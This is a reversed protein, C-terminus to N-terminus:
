PTHTVGDAIQVVQEATLDGDVAVTFTTGDPFRAQLFWGTYGNGPDLRFLQAPSGHVTVEQGPGAGAAVVDPAQEAPLVEEPLLVSVTLGRTTAPDSVDALRVIRGGAKLVDLRYGAPALHLQVPITQPGEVLSEAIAALEAGDAFAGTGMLSVWQGATREWDLYVTRADDYRPNMVVQRAPRGGVVVTQEEVPDAGETLVIPPPPQTGVVIFVRDQPDETGVYSMATDGNGTAGLAPGTTGPPATPLTLPAVPMDFDVLQVGDVEVGDVPPRDRSPSSDDPVAVAVATWAAAVAVAGAGIRLALRRSPRRATPRGRVTGAAGIEALLAARAASRADPSLAPAEPGADRLLTLENM